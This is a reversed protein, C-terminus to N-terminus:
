INEGVKRKEMENMFMEKIESEKTNLLQRLEEAKEKEKLLREVFKNQEEIPPLPIVIKRLDGVALSLFQSGVGINELYQQGVTSNFYASVYHPNVQENTRIVYINGNALVTKGQQSVYAAAKFPTGNKSLVIDGDELIYHKIKETVMKIRSLGDSIRGNYIDGVTLFYIGTDETSNLEDREKASLGAGRTIKGVVVDGLTTAHPIEPLTTTYRAPNLVCDNDLLTQIDVSCSISSDTECLKLIENIHEDIFSHTRRGKSGIERADVMRVKNSKGFVILVSQIPTSKIIGSPLLIVSKIWGCRIFDERVARSASNLVNGLPIHAVGIGDDPLLKCILDCFAWNSEQRLKMKLDDRMVSPKYETLEGIEAGWPPNCYVRDFTEDAYISFADGFRINAEIPLHKLSERYLEDNKEVGFLKVNPHTVRATKLFTGSASGIDLLSHGAQAKLLSLVIKTVSESERVIPQSNPTSLSALKGGTDGNERTTLAFQPENERGSTKNQNNSDM